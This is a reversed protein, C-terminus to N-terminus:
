RDDAAARVPGDSLFDRLRCPRAAARPALVSVIAQHDYRGARSTPDRGSRADRSNRGDAAILLPASLKRGDELAVTVGHEGRDVNPSADVEVPALINKGAEARAQLAARLHRNEHMWGLPEDDDADFHM